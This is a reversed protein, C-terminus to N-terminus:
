RYRERYTALAREHDARKAARFAGRPDPPAREADAHDALSDVVDVLLYVRDLVDLRALLDPDTAAGRAADVDALLTRAARPDERVAPALWAAIDWAPDGLRLHDWDLIHFGGDGAVLVNGAWLDGHVPTRSIGAFAPAARAAATVAATESEMFRWLSSPVFAPCAPSAQTEM